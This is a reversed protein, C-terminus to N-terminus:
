LRKPASSTGSSPTARSPAKSRSPTSARSSQPSSSRTQQTSSRQTATNRTSSGKSVSRQAPASRVASSNSAGSSRSTVTQQRTSSSRRSPTSRVSTSQRVESRSNGSSVQNRGASVAARPATTNRNETTRISTSRAQTTNSARQAQAPRSEVSQPRSSVTTRSATLQERNQVGVNRREFSRNPNSRAYDNRGQRQYMQYARASKRVAVHHYTHHAHIHHHVHRHYVFVPRPAWCNYYVPYYGYYYPSVWHVYTPGWFYTYIIPRRVYVPEIIYNNGYIYNNGVVQVVVNNGRKEVDITAVDQYIDKALVAQILILLVGDEASEVVRLYDVYGDENLDLNSIQVDPDNLNREFDELNNADGFMSAVAELDLNDSIDYSTAKVTVRQQAYLGLTGIFLTLALLRAKTKM